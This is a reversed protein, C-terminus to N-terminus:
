AVAERLLAGFRPALTRLSYGEEARARGAEGMKRRLEAEAILRELALRWEEETAVCYGTVADVVVECNVGVASAVVPLGTAMYLLAKFAGKGRTWPDDPEPLIGIDFQAVDTPERELSYPRVVVHRVAPNAYEGGIVRLEVDDRAGVAALPGDVLRLYPSTTSSGVWGIVTHPGAVRSARPRHRDTDVPTPLVVVRQNWRRAYSALYENGVIVLRARRASEAVRGPPRLWQWRRNAPHATPLFIADDFDLVYPVRLATLVREFLAPGIAASERHVLVLDYRKARGLDVFRRLAGLLVGLVKEVLYGRRYLVRYTREPLYASIELRIGQDALLPAYQEVRLRNSAGLTPYPVLCLVRM